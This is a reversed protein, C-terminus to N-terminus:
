SLEYVENANGALRDLCNYRKMDFFRSILDKNWQYVIEPNAADVVQELYAINDPKIRQLAQMFAPYQNLVPFFGRTHELAYYAENVIQNDQLIAMFTDWDLQLQPDTLFGYIDVFKYLGLDRQFEVWTKVAAEKYLHVCLHALFYEKPLSSISVGDQFPYEEAQRIFADVARETGHAM